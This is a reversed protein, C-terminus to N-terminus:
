AMEARLDRHFHAWGEGMMDPVHLYGARGYTLERVQRRNRAVWDQYRLRRESALPVVAVRRRAEADSVTLEVGKGGGGGGRGGAWRSCPPGPRSRRARGPCPRAPARIPPSVLCSGSWRGAATPPRPWTPASIASRRHPPGPSGM